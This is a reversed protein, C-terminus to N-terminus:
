NTQFVPFNVLVPFNVKDYLKNKYDLINNSDEFTSSEFVAIKEKILISSNDYYYYHKLKKYANFIQDKNIIENM